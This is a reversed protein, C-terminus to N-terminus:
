GKNTQQNTRKNITQKEQRDCAMRETAYWESSEVGVEIWGDGCVSESEREEREEVFRM